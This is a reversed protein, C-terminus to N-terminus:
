DAPGTSSIQSVGSPPRASLACFLRCIMRCLSLGARGDATTESGGLLVPAGSEIDRPGHADFFALHGDRVVALAFGVAPHRNLVEGIWGDLDKEEIPVTTQSRPREPAALPVPM